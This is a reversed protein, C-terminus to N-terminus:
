PMPPPNRKKRSYRFTLMAAAGGILIGLAAGLMMGMIINLPKNPRAPRSSPYASDIITVTLGNTTMVAREAYIRTIVNAITAAERPNDSFARVEIVNAGRYPRVELRKQLLVLSETSKLRTGDLYRKGWQTNLDLAEVVKGLIAESQIVESETQVLRADYSEAEAPSRQGAQPVAGTREVKIRATSAFSEPLIFTILTSALSVMLFVMFFPGFFPLWPSWSENKNVTAHM